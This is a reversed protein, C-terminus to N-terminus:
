CQHVAACVAVPDDPARVADGAHCSRKRGDITAKAEINQFLASARVSFTPSPEFLAQVRGGYARDGNINNKVASGGTGISDIFGGDHRYFGTARVAFTAALPVNVVANGYYSTDGGKVAEVGARGRVSLKTLDPANTVFKSCAARRVPVM